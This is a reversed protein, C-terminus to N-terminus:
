IQEQGTFQTISFCGEAGPGTFDWLHLGELWDSDAM